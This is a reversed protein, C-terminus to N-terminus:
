DYNFMISYIKIFKLIDRFFYIKNLFGTLLKFIFLENKKSLFLLKTIILFFILITLLVKYSIKIFIHSSNIILKFFDYFSHNNINEKKKLLELNITFLINLIKKELM